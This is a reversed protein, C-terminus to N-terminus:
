CRTLPSEPTSASKALNRANSRDEKKRRTRVTGMDGRHGSGDEDAAEAAL